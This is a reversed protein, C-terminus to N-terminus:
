GNEPPNTRRANRLPDIRGDGHTSGKLNPYRYSDFQRALVRVRVLELGFRYLFSFDHAIKSSGSARNRFHYGAESIGNRSSRVVLSLM